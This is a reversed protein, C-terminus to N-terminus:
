VVMDARHNWFLTRDSGAAIESRKRVKRQTQNAFALRKELTFSHFAAFRKTASSQFRHLQLCFLPQGQEVACLRHVGNAPERKQARLPERADGINGAALRSASFPVGAAKSGRKCSARGWGPWLSAALCRMDIKSPLSM